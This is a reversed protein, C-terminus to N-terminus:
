LDDFSMSDQIKGPQSRLVSRVTAAAWKGGRKTPTGDQHLQTAIKNYSAGTNRAARIRDLVSQESEVARLLRVPRGGGDVSGYAEWGFPEHNWVRGAAKNSRLSETTREAILGRELEAFVASVGAMARGHPTALDIQEVVSVLGVKGTRFQKYLNMREGADRGLRDLRLVAIADADPKRAELLAAIRAGGERAALPKSGSVGADAIVDIVEGGHLDAWARIREEQVAISLGNEAQEVTSCRLYAILRLSTPM